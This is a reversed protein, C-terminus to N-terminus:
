VADSTQRVDVIGRRARLTRVCRLTFLTPLVCHELIRIKRKKESKFFVHSKVNKLHGTLFRLFTTLWFSNM